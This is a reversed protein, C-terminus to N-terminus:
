ERLALHGDQGKSHGWSLLLGDTMPPPAGGKETMDLDQGRSGAGGVGGPPPSWSRANQLLRASVM